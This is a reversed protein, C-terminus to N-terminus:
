ATTLLGTPIRRFLLLCPSGFCPWALIYCEFLTVCNQRGFSAEKRPILKDGCNAECKILAGLCVKSLHDKFVFLLFLFMDEWMIKDWM